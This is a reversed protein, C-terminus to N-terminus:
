APAAQAVVPTFTLLNLLRTLNYAAFCFLAQGSVKALGKHRTKRLGGVTKIWGFAEEIMKRRRLSMAYGKGRATRGDIATGKAKRAVHPKVGRAALEEVFGAQDYGKDAGVTAGASVTREIMTQAAEVEATGTAKTTEVDVILGHRNEALAHTLYRLKAETYEGKKYLRADPDTTSQYTANSRKEGSFDVEPNRGQPREPGSGDKRVFSKHSAWAEIMTGDVSFHEDSVLDQWEAIALVREFFDRASGESLLRDRNACFVTRDWVPDDIGLGVFWRFLLNYDLQEIVQRESRVTYLVQLLLARLLREPPVSPRGTHSYRATFEASLSRLIGDVLLRMRRLPHNLPVREELNVYSFMAGQTVDQGRM